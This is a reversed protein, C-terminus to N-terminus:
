QESVAQPKPPTELRIRADWQMARGEQPEWVRSKGAETSSEM